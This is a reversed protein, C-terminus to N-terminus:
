SFNFTEISENLVNYECDAECWYFRFRVSPQVEEPLFHLKSDSPKYNLHHRRLTFNYLLPLANENNTHPM